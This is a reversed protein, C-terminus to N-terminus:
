IVGEQELWGAFQKFNDKIVQEDSYQDYYYNAVFTKIKTDEYDFEAIKNKSTNELLENPLISSYETGNVVSYGISKEKDFLDIKISQNEKDIIVSSDDFSINYLVAENKIMALIEEETHIPPLYSTGVVKNFKCGSTVGIILAIVATLLAKNGNCLKTVNKLLDADLAVDCITPYEPTKYRKVAKLKM